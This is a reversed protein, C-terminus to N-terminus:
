RSDSLYTGRFDVRGPGASLGDPDVEPGTLGPRHTEGRGNGTAGTTANAADVGPSWATVTDVPDAPRLRLVSLLALLGDLSFLRTEHDPTITRGDFDHRWM